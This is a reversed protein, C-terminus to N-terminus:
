AVLEDVELSDQKLAVKPKGGFSWLKKLIFYNVIGTWLLTIIWAVYHPLEAYQTMAINFVTSLIIIISYGGYMRLLSKRYGGVYNGFVLYRHTTHRFIISFSFSLGWCISADEINLATHLLYDTTLQIVDCISGSLMYCLYQPPKVNCILVAEAASVTGFAVRDLGSVLPIRESKESSSACCCGKRLHIGQLTDIFSSLLQGLISHRKRKEGDKSYDITTSSETSIKDM